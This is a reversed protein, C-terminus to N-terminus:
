LIKSIFNMKTSGLVQPFFVNLSGMNLQLHHYSDFVSTSTAYRQAYVKLLYFFRGLTFVGDISLLAM